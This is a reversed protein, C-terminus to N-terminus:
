YTDSKSIHEKHKENQLGFVTEDNIDKHQLVPGFHRGPNGDRPGLISINRHGAAVWLVNQTM